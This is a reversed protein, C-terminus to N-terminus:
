LAQRLGSELRVREMASQTLAETYFEYANRGRAKARYMATDANRM